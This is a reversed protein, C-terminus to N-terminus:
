GGVELRGMGEDAEEFEPIMAVVPIWELCITRKYVCKDLHWSKKPKQSYCHECHHLGAASFLYCAVQAGFQPGEYQMLMQEGIWVKPRKPYQKYVNALEAKVDDKVEAEKVDDKVEAGKVEAKADVKPSVLRSSPPSTRKLPLIPLPVIASYATIIPHAYYDNSDMPPPLVLVPDEIVQKTSVSQLQSPSSRTRTFSTATVGSLGILQHPSQFTARTLGIPLNLTDVNEHYVYGYRGRESAYHGGGYQSGHREVEPTLAETRHSQNLDPSISYSTQLNRDGNADISEFVVFPRNELRITANSITPQIVATPSKVSRKNPIPIPVPATRNTTPLGEGVVGDKRGFLRFLMISKKKAGHFRNLLFLLAKKRL